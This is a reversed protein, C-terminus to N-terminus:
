VSKVIERIQPLRIKSLANEFDTKATLAAKYNTEEQEPNYPTLEEDKYVEELKGGRVGAIYDAGEQYHCYYTSKQGPKDAYKGGNFSISVKFWISYASTELAIYNVKAYGGPRLPKITTDRGPALVADIQDKIKKLLSNDQKQIQQGIYQRLLKKIQPVHLNSVRRVENEMHVIESITFYHLNSM